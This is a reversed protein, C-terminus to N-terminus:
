LNFHFSCNRSMPPPIPLRGSVTIEKMHWLDICMQVSTYMSSRQVILACACVCMCACVCVWVCLCGSCKLIWNLQPQPIEAKCALHSQTDARWGCHAVASLLIIAMLPANTTEAWHYCIILTPSSLLHTRRQTISTDNSGLCSCHQFAKKKPRWAGSFHPHATNTNLFLYICTHIHTHMCM